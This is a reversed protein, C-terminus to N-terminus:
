NSAWAEIVVHDDLQPRMRRRLFPGEFRRRASDPWVGSDASSAIGPRRWPEDDAGAGAALQRDGVIEVALRLPVPDLDDGPWGGLSALQERSGIHPGRCCDEM